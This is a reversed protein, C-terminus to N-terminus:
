ENSIWNLIISGDVGLDELHNREKLNGWWFGTRMEQRGTYAVHGAWRIGKSKIVWNDDSLSHGVTYCPLLACQSQLPKGKIEVIQIM